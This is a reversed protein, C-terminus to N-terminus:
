MCELSWKPVMKSCLVIYLRYIACQQFGDFVMISEDFDLTQGMSHAGLFSSFYVMFMRDFIMSKLVMKAGLLKM